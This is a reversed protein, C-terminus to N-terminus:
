WTAIPTRKWVNPATCVYIFNTDWSIQGVAGPSASAPPVTPAPLFLETALTTDGVIGLDTSITTNTASVTVVPAAAHNMRIEFNGATEDQTLEVGDGGNFTSVFKLLGAQSAVNNGITLNISDGYTVISSSGISANGQVVAFDGTNNFFGAQINPAMEFVLGKLVLPASSAVFTLNVNDNEFTATTGPNTATGQMQMDGYNYFYNQDFKAVQLANVAIDVESNTGYLGTGNNSVSYTPASLNGGYAVIYGTSFIEVKNVSSTDRVIINQGAQTPYLDLTSGSQTWYGVLSSPSQWQTLGGGDTVLVYNNVGRNNPFTYSNPGPAVAIGNNVTLTGGTVCNGTLGDVGLAPSGFDVNYGVQLDGDLNVTFLNRRTGTFDANFQIGTARNLQFKTPANLFSGGYALLNLANTDVTISAPNTTINARLQITGAAFGPNIFLNQTGSIFSATGNSNLEIVPISTGSLVYVSDGAFRPYVTNASRDWYSPDPNTIWSSTGNGNSILIQGATGRTPPSSVSNVTGANATFASSTSIGVSSAVVSQTITLTSPANLYTGAYASFKFDSGKFYLPKATSGTDATSITSANLPDAKINVSTTGNIFSTTFTSPDSLFTPVSAIDTLELSAGALIPSIVNGVQQWYNTYPFTTWSLNGAGDTTLVQSSTGDLNPWVYANYAAVNGTKVYTSSITIDAAIVIRGTSDVTFQPIASISGYTGPVVGTATGLLRWTSTAAEFQYQNQGAVPAVPYLQGNVAPSPFTLLAM